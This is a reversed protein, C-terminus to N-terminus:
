QIEKSLGVLFNIEEVGIEEKNEWALTGVYFEGFNKGKLFGVSGCDVFLCWWNWHSSHPLVM